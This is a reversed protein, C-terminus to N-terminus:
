NHLCRIALMEYDHIKAIFLSKINAVAQSQKM